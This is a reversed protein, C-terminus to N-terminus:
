GSGRADAVLEHVRPVVEQIFADGADSSTIFTDFGVTRIGCTQHCWPRELAPSPRAQRWRTGIVSAQWAELLRAIAQTPASETSM